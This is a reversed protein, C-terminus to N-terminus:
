VWLREIYDGHNEIVLRLMQSAKSKWRLCSRQKIESFSNPVVSSMTESFFLNLIECRHGSDKEFTSIM